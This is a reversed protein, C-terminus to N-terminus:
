RLRLIKRTSSWSGIEVKYFYVGSAVLNGGEDRGNWVARYRGASRPEDVLSAVRRGSVDYVVLRVPSQVAVTFVISASTAFPNPYSPFLGNVYHIEGPTNDRVDTAIMRYVGAWFGEDLVYSGGSVSGVVGAEGLTAGLSYSGGSV